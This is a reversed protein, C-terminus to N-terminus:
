TAYGNKSVSESSSALVSKLAAELTIKTFNREIWRNIIEVLALGILKTSHNYESTHNLLVNHLGRMPHTLDRM